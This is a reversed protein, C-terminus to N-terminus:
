SRRFWNRVFVVGLYLLFGCIEILSIVSGGMALSMWGGVKAPPLFSTCLRNRVLKGALFIPHECLFDFFGVKYLFIKPYDFSEFYFQIM